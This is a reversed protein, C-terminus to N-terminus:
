EGMLRVIRRPPACQLEKEFAKCCQELLKRAEAKQDNDLLLTIMLEYAEEYVRDTDIARRVYHLAKDIDSNDAANQALEMLANLYSEKLSEREYSSWESFVDEKLFDGTYLEAACALLANREAPVDTKDAARIYEKFEVFDVIGNNGMDFLYGGEEMRLYLSPMKKELKPELAQRIASVANWLQNRVNKEAASEWVIDIIEEATIPRRYHLLLVKFVDRTKKRKWDDNTLERGDVTVSFRGFTTIAIRKQVLEVSSARVLRPKDAQQAKRLIDAANSIVTLNEARSIINKIEHRTISDRIEKHRQEQEAVAELTRYRTRYRRALATEGTKEYLQIMGQLLQRFERHVIRGELELCRFCEYSETFYALAAQDDGEKMALIGFSHLHWGEHLRDGTARSIALSDRYYQRATALDGLEVYLMGLRHIHGAESVKDGTTRCLHLAQTFYKLADPFNRLVYHVAGISGYCNAESVKDGLERCISLFRFLYELARTHDGISYQVLGIGRLAHLLVPRHNLEEAIAYSKLFNDLAAAPEDLDVYVNGILTYLLSTRKRDDIEEALMLTGRYLKMAGALDGQQTCQFGIQIRLDIEQPKMQSNCLALGQQLYQQALAFQSTRRYNTGFGCYLEALLVPNNLKEILPQARCFYEHAKDFEARRGCIDGFLLWAAAIHEDQGQEVARDLAEQTRAHAADTDTSMLVRAEDLLTAASNEPQEGATATASDPLTIRM